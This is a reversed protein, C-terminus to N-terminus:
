NRATRTLTARDERKHPHPPAKKHARKTAARTTTNRPSMNGTGHPTHPAHHKLHTATNRTPATAGRRNPAPTAHTQKQTTHARNGGRPCAKHTNTPQTRKQAWRPQQIVTKILPKTTIKAGTLRHKNKATKRPKRRNQRAHYKKSNKRLLNVKLYLIAVM